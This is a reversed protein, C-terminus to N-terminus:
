LLWWKVEERHKKQFILHLFYGLIKEEKIILKEQIAGFVLQILYAAM